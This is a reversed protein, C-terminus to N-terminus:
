PKRHLPDHWRCVSLTKSRKWDSNRKAQWAGRDMPNEWCSYQIPNGNGEGPSRRPGPISGPDGANCASEKSVWSCPFDWCFKRLPTIEPAGLHSALHLYISSTKKKFFIGIQFQNQCGVSMLIDIKAGHYMHLSINILTVCDWPSLWSNSTHQSVTIKMKGLSTM